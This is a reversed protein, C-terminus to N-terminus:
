LYQHCQQQQEANKHEPGKIHKTMERERKELVEALALAVVAKRNLNMGENGNHDAMNQKHGCNKVKGRQARDAADSM